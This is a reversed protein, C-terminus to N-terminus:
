VDNPDLWWAIFFYLDRSHDWRYRQMPQRIRAMVIPDSNRSQQPLIGIEDFVRMAMARDTAELVQPKVKVVPFAMEDWDYAEWVDRLVVEGDPREHRRQESVYTLPAPNRYEGFGPGMTHDPSMDRDRNEDGPKTKPMREPDMRVAFVEMGPFPPMIMYGARVAEAAKDYFNRLNVLRRIAPRFQSYRWGSKKAQAEGDELDKIERDLDGIKKEFIAVSGMQAAPVDAACTAVLATLSEPEKRHADIQAVETEEAPVVTGDDSM